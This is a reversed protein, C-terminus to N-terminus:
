NTLEEVPTRSVTQFFLAPLAMYLVLFNLWAMGDEPIRALKGSAFGLAILGFFPLALSLIDAM